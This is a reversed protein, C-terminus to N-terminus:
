DLLVVFVRDPETHHNTWIQVMPQVVGEQELVVENECTLIALRGNAQLPGEWRLEAPLPRALEATTGMFFETPGDAGTLTGVTVSSATATVPGPDLSAPLEGQSPDM